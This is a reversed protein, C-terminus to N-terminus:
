LMPSATKMREPLDEQDLVALVTIKIRMVGEMRAESSMEAGRPPIM